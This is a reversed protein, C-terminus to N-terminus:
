FLSVYRHYNKMEQCLNNFWKEIQKGETLTLLEKNLYLVKEQTEKSLKFGVMMLYELYMKPNPHRDELLRKGYSLFSSHKEDPYYKHGTYWDFTNCLPRTTKDPNIKFETSKFLSSMPEPVDNFVDKYIDIVKDIEYEPFFVNVDNSDIHTSRLMICESPINELFSKVLTILALDRVIFGKVCTYKELFNDNYFSQNYISGPTQWRNEIYRDERFHSSWMVMILDNEDFKYIQNGAAIRESIFLNGGGSQGLNYVEAQPTEFALINAWTPWFYNTFSCGVIFVRNYKKFELNSYETHQIIM